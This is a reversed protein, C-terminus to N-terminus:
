KNKTHNQLKQCVLQSYSFSKGEQSWCAHHAFTNISSVKQKIHKSKCVCGEILICVVSYKVVLLSVNIKTKISGQGTVHRQGHARRERDIKDTQSWSQIKGQEMRCLLVAHCAKASAWSIDTADDLLNIVYDLMFESIKLDSKERTTRCFGAM